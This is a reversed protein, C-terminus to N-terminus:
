ESSEVALDDEGESAAFVVKWKREAFGRMKKDTWKHSSSYVYVREQM